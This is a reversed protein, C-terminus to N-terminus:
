QAARENSSYAQVAHKEPMHGDPSPQYDDGSSQLAEQCSLIRQALSHRVDVGALARNVTSQSTGVMRAIALQTYGRRVLDRLADIVTM